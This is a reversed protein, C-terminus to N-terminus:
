TINIVHIKTVMRYTLFGLTLLNTQSKAVTETYYILSQIRIGTTKIWIQSSIHEKGGLAM